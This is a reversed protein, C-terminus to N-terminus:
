KKNKIKEAIASRNTGPLAPKKSPKTTTKDNQLTTELTSQQEITEEKESTHTPPPLDGYLSMKKVLNPQLFILVYTVRNEKLHSIEM